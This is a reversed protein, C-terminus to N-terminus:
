DLMPLQRSGGRRGGKRDIVLGAVLVTLIPFVSACGLLGFGDAVPPDCKKGLGLGMALILPVTVSGTTVGGADWAVCAIGETSFVTLTMSLIYMPVLIQWMPVDWLVKFVGVCTGLAVGFAVVYIGM